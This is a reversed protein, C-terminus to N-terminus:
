YDRFTRDPHHCLRNIDCRRFHLALKAPTKGGKFAVRDGKLTLIEIRINSIRQKEVPLYHVNEFNHLCELSPYIYTRLCRVLTSGVFQPSIMDCYILGNNDGVINLDSVTGLKGPPCTFECLGVEWNGDPDLDIPRALEVTFAGITKEPYVEQSAYSLLTVYFQSPQDSM